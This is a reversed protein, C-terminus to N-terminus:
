VDDRVYGEGLVAAINGGLITNEQSFRGKVVSGACVTTNNPLKVGKSVISNHGIWCGYGIRISQAVKLPKGRVTDILPHFDTDIFTCDWSGRVKDGFEISKGVIFRCGFNFRNSDGFTLVGEPRCSIFAHHSIHAAGKFIVTGLNEWRFSKDPIIPAKCNGFRIMNYHIDPSELIVRGKLKVFTPRVYFIIPLKRAQHFPLYHFCFVISWPLHLLIRMREKFVGGM